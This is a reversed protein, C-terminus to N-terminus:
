RGYNSKKAPGFQKLLKKAEEAAPTDPYDAVIKELKEVGKDRTIPNKLMQKALALSRASAKDPDDSKDDAKAKSKSKDDDAEDDSEDVPAKSPSADGAISPFNLGYKLNFNIRMVDFAQGITKGGGGYSKKAIQETDFVRVSGRVEASLAMSRLDEAIGEMIMADATVLAVLELDVDKVDIDKLRAAYDPLVEALKRYYVAMKIAFGRPNRGGVPLAPRGIKKVRKYMSRNIKGVQEWYALTKQPDGPAGSGDGGGAHKRPAPLEALSRPGSQVSQMIKRLHEISIAFNLNQGDTRNWTNLGVVEGRMNVLPGGSNGGSIPATTQIWVADLDYGLYDKYIDARGGQMLM